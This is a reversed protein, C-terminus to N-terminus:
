TCNFENLWKILSKTTVQNYYTEKPCKYVTPIGGQCVFYESCDGLNVFTGYDQICRPDKPPRQHPPSQPRPPPPPSPPRM